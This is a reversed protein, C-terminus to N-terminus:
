RSVFQTVSRTYLAFLDINNNNYAITASKMLCTLIESDSFLM